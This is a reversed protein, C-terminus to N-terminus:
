VCEFEPIFKYHRTYLYKSPPHIYILDRLTRPIPSAVILEILFDAAKVRLHSDGCDVIHGPELDSYERYDSPLYADTIKLVEDEILLNACPYPPAFSRVTRIIMSASMRLDLTIDHPTRRRWYNADDPNQKHELITDTVLGEYLKRSGEYGGANLNKLVASISQDRGIHIPVKLLINGDDIDDNMRFFTLKSEPIGLQILWHIPHRGRNHPLDTPHSGICFKSPLDLVERKLIEPWSAFIYDPRYQRLCALSEASNIYGVEHYPIKNAAAYSEVDASNDPRHSEERSIMALIEAGAEILGSVCNLFFETTGLVIFKM